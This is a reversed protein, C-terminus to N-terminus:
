KVPIYTHQYIKFITTNEKYKKPIQQLYISHLNNHSQTKIKKYYINTYKSYIKIINIKSLINYVIYPRKSKYKTSM